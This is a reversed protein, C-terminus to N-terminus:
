VRCVDWRVAVVQEQPAASGNGAMEPDVTQANGSCNSRSPRSFNRRLSGAKWGRGDGMRGHQWVYRLTELRKSAEKQGPPGDYRQKRRVLREERAAGQNTGGAGGCRSQLCIGM